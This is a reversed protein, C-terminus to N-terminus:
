MLYHQVRISVVLLDSLNNQHASQFDWSWWRSSFPPSFFFPFFYLILFPLSIVFLLSFLYIPSPSEFFGWRVANNPTVTSENTTQNVALPDHYLEGWLDSEHVYLSMLLCSSISLSHHWCLFLINHTSIWTCCLFAGLMIPCILYRGASLALHSTFRFSTIRM